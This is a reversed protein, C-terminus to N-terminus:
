RDKDGSQFIDAGEAGEWTGGCGAGEEGERRLLQPLSSARRPQPGHLHASVGEKQEEM